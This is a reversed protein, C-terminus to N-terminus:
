RNHGSFAMGYSRAREVTQKRVASEKKVFEHYIPCERYGDGRCYDREEAISPIM